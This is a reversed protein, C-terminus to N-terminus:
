MSKLVVSLLRVSNQCAVPYRLLFDLFIRIPLAAIRCPFQAVATSEYCCGAVVAVLGLIEGPRVIGLMLRKDEMSNMTLKVRGELLFLVSRPEQQEMFLVKMGECFFQAAQSEFESM